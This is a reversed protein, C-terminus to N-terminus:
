VGRQLQQLLDRTVVIQNVRVGIRALRTEQQALRATVSHVI